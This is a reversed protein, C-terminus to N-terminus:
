VMVPLVGEYQVYKGVLPINTTSRASEAVPNRMNRCDKWKSQEIVRVGAIPAQLRM